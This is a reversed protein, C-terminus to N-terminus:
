SVLSLWAERVVKLNSIRQEFQNYSVFAGNSDYGNIYAFYTASEEQFGNLSMSNKFSIIGIDRRLISLRSCVWAVHFESAMVSPCFPCVKSRDRGQTPKDRCNNVKMGVTIASTEGENIFRGRTLSEVPRYAPLKSVVIEDNLKAIFFKDLYEKIMDSTYIFPIYITNKIESIYDFYDSKWRGSLHELM